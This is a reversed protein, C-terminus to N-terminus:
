RRGRRTLSPVISLSSPLITKESSCLLLVFATPHRAPPANCIEWGSAVQVRTPQEEEEEELPQTETHQEGEELSVDWAGADLSSDRM